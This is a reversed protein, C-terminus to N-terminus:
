RQKELCSELHAVIARDVNLMANSRAKLLQVLKPDHQELEAYLAHTTGGTLTANDTFNVMLTSMGLVSSAYNKFQEKTMM